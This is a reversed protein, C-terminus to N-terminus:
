ENMGKYYDDIMRVSLGCRSLEAVTLSYMGADAKKLRALYSKFVACMLDDMEAGERLNALMADFSKRLDATDDMDFVSRLFLANAYLHREEIGECGEFREAIRDLDDDKGHMDGWKEAEIIHRRLLASYYYFDNVGRYRDAFAVYKEALEGLDGRETMTLNAEFCAAIMSLDDASVTGTAEDVYADLAMRLLQDYDKVFNYQRAVESLMNYYMGTSFARNDMGEIKKPDTDRLKVYVRKAKDAVARDTEFEATLLLFTCADVEHAQRCMELGSDIAMNCKAADGLESYCQAITALNLFMQSVFDFGKIIAERLLGNLGLESRLQNEVDCNARYGNSVDVMLGILEEFGEITDPVADGHRALITAANSEMGPVYPIRDPGFTWAHGTREVTFEGCKACEITVSVPEIESGGYDAEKVSCSSGCEPCYHNTNSLYIKRYQKLEDSVKSRPQEPM